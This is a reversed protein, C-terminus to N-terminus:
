PSVEDRLLHVLSGEFVGHSIPLSRHLEDWTRAALPSFFFSFSFLSLSARLMVFAPHMSRTNTRCLSNAYGLLALPDNGDTGHCSIHRGYRMRHACSSASVTVRALAPSLRGFKPCRLMSSKLLLRRAKRHSISLKAGTYPLVIAAQLKDERVPCRQVRLLGCNGDKRRPFKASLMSM